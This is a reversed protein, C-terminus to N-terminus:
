RTLRVLLNYTTEAEGPVLEVSYFGPAVRINVSLKQRSQALITRVPIRGGQFIIRDLGDQNNWSLDVSLTGEDAVKVMYRHRELSLTDSVNSNLQISTASRPREVGSQAACASLLFVTVLLLFIVRFALM